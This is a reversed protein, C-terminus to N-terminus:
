VTVYLYNVYNIRDCWTRFFSDVGKRSISMLSTSSLSFCCKSQSLIIQSIIKIKKNITNDLDVSGYINIKFMRNLLNYITSWLIQKKSSYKYKDGKKERVSFLVFKKFNKVSLHLEVHHLCIM